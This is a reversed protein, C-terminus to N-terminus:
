SILKYFIESYIPSFDFKTTQLVYDAGSIFDKEIRTRGDAGIRVFNINDTGLKKIVDNVGNHTKPYKQKQIKYKGQTIDLDDFVLYINEPGIKYFNVIEIVADGSKNMYTEPKLLLYKKDEIVFDAFQGKFKKVFSLDKRKAIYDIFGAGVNHITNEYAKGPNGLGIFLKM